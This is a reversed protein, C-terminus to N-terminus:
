EVPDSVGAARRMQEGSLPPPRSIAPQEYPKMGSAKKVGKWTQRLGQNIGYIVYGGYRPDLAMEEPSIGPDYAKDFRNPDVKIPNDFRYLDLVEDDPPLAKVEDMTQVHEGANLGPPTATRDQVLPAAIAFREDAPTEAQQAFAPGISALLVCAWMCRVHHRTQGM